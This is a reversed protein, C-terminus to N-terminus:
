LHSLPLREHRGDNFAMLWGKQSLELSVGLIPKGHVIHTSQM